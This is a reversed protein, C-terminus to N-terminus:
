NSNGFILGSGAVGLGGFPGAIRGSVKQAILRKMLEEEQAKALEQAALQPNLTMAIQRELAKDGARQAAFNSAAVTAEVGAHGAPGAPSALTHAAARGLPSNAVRGFLGQKAIPAIMDALTSATNSHNVNSYPVDATADRAAMAIRRAQKYAEPEMVARLRPANKAFENAMTTGNVKGDATIGKSLVDDLYQSRLSALAKDGNPSQKLSTVMSRLDDLSTGANRLSNGVREPAIGEGALKGAYTKSFEDFRAKAAARAQAFPQGGMNDLVDTDLADQFVRRMAFTQRDNPGLNGIFKRMEEAQKVNLGAQGGDADAYRALRKNISAAMDDFQMNDAWDPHAMAARFNELSPIRADGSAQRVGNYLSSVEKNLQANRADLSEIVRQGMAEPGIAGGQSDVLSRTSRVLDSDVGQMAQLVPDGGTRKLAEREFKWVRPDRTIQGVTPAQVGARAFRAQRVAAARGPLVRPANSVATSAARKAFPKAIAKGAISGVKGMVAGTAVDTAFQTPNRKNSLVAGGVAGGLWPNSIGGLPISGAVQGVLRGGKSTQYPSKQDVDQQKSRLYAAGMDYLPSLMGMPSFQGPKGGLIDTVGAAVDGLGQLVGQTKSVPRNDGKPASQGASDVRRLEAGLAQVARQDGARGAQRIAEVLQDRTAM